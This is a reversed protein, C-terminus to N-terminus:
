KQDVRGGHRTTDRRTLGQGARAHEIRCPIAMCPSDPVCGIILVAGMPEKRLRPKLMRYMLPTDPRGDAMWRDLYELAYMVDKEIWAVEVMLAEHGPKGLDQKLAAVIRMSNDKIAYFLRRLQVKRFEADRTKGSVFTRTLREHIEAIQGVPTTTPTLLLPNSAM